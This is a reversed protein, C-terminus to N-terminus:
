REDVVKFPSTNSDINHVSWTVSQTTINLTDYKMDVNDVSLCKRLIIRRRKHRNNGNFGPAWGDIIISRYTLVQARSATAPPEYSTYGPGSSLTGNNLTYLFNFLTPEALNSKATISRKSMRSLVTGPVQRFEVTKYEQNVTLLVGESTAGMDTWYLASPVSGVLIDSPEPSGYDAIYITAPGLVLTSAFDGIAPAATSPNIQSDVFIGSDSSTLNAVISNFETTTVSDSSSIQGLLSQADTGQGTDSSTLRISPTGELATGTDASSITGAISQTDTGHGTDAASLTGAISQTEVGAGTDSSSLTGAISQGETGSGTDSSSVSVSDAYLEVAMCNGGQLTGPSNTFTCTPSGIGAPGNSDATSGSLFFAGTGGVSDDRETRDDTWTNTNNDKAAVFYIAWQGSDTISLAPTTGGTGAGFGTRTLTGVPTTQNVGSGVWVNAYGSVSASFTWVWSAGESAALKGYMVSRVSGAPSDQVGSITTWGAPPTITASASMISVMCYIYDNDQVASPSSPKTVTLATAAVTANNSSGACRFAIAM